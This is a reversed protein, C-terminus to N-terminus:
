IGIFKKQLDVNKNIYGDLLEQNGNEVALVVTTCGSKKMLQIIEKNLTYISVGNPCSWTINLKKEIIGTLIEKLRNKDLTFTDDSFEIHGVQYKEIAYQIEALVRKASKARFKHGWYKSSSCFVCKGPCGRSTMINISRKSREKTVDHTSDILFYKEMPLLDYAPMPLSDLDTIPTKQKRSYVKEGNKYAIGDLKEPDGKDNICQLLNILSLEGEGLVIYDLDKNEKLLSEALFTPHAGGIITVISNDTLKVSSCIELTTGIQSSFICSIGVADPEYEKIKKSVMEAPLGFRFFKDDMPEMFEHGEVITDLIEVEYGYERCMAAIHVLGLPPIATRVNGINSM